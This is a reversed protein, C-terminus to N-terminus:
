SNELIEAATTALREVQVSFADLSGPDKDGMAGHLYRAYVGEIICAGRWTAFAVFYNLEALDRGSAQAYMAAVEEREPFGDVITPANTLMTDDDSPRAWYMSLAGIDARVDGLTCLEWDLVAAVKNDDGIMCNDLRYDGHVIGASGQDPIRAALKDHTEDVIALDRTKSKNWQGHWRRLQREIYGEKRGLEGLGVEDPDVRHLAALTEVLSKTMEQLDERGYGASITADRVVTGEVFDMVYFPAGNVDLDECLGIVGPVPVESDALAAIIRHERGMDHASELLHGMPPRRLAWTQGEADRVRFTLNSHGGAILEFELPGTLDAREKMWRTVADQDIGTVNGM